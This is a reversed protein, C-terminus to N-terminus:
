QKLGLDTLVDRARASEVRLWDDFDPGDLYLPAWLHRRCSATWDDSAGVSRCVDLLHARDDERLSDSVLLGRWDAHILRVGSEMLTPADVEPLREPSSVALARVRGARIQPALQAVGGVGAAVRGDLLAGLLDGESPFAAYDVLRADAGLGKAILGCLVHDAGGHGRGGMLVSGASRRLAAALGDFDRLRSGMPAVVVSWEGAMRALPVTGSLNVLAPGAVLMRGRSAGRTFDKISAKDGDCTTVDVARALGRRTVVRRLEQAFGDDHGGVVAPVVLSLPVGLPRPGAGCGAALAALGAGWLLFERRRM